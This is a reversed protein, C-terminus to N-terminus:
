SMASTGSGPTRFRKGYTVPPQVRPRNSPQLGQQRLPAQGRAQELLAQYRVEQEHFLQRYMGDLRKVVHWVQREDVGWIRRRWVLRSLKDAILQLTVAEQRPSADPQQRKRSRGRM